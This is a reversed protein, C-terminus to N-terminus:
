MGLIGVAVYEMDYFKLSNGINAWFIPDIRDYVECEMAPSLSDLNLLDM